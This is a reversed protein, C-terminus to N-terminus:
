GTTRAALAILALAGVAAVAGLVEIALGGTEVGEVVALLVVGVTTVGALQV